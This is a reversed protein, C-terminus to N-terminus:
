QRNLKKLSLKYKIKEVFGTIGFIILFIAGGVMVYYGVGKSAISGSLGSWYEDTDISHVVLFAIGDLVCGFFEKFLSLVIGVVAVAVFIPFDGEGNTLEQLSKSISSGLLSASVYPMFLGVLCAISSALCLVMFLTKTSDYSSVVGVRNNTPEYRTDPQSRYTNGQEKLPTGCYPCFLVGASLSSGCKFCYRIDNNNANAPVMAECEVIEFGRINNENHNMAVMGASNAEDRTAFYNGLNNDEETTGNLFQYIIKYKKM